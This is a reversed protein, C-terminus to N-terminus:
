EKPEAPEAEDEPLKAALPPLRRKNRNVGPLASRRTLSPSDSDPVSPAAPKKEERRRALTSSASLLFEQKKARPPETDVLPRAPGSGHVPVDDTPDAPDERSPRRPQQEVLRDQRDEDRQAQPAKPGRSPPPVALMQEVHARFDNMQRLMKEHRGETSARIEDLEKAQELVFSLARDAQARATALSRHSLELQGKLASIEVELREIREDVLDQRASEHELEEHDPSGHGSTDGSGFDGLSTPFPSGAAEDTSAFSSMARQAAPSPSANALDMVNRVEEAGVNQLAAQVDEAQDAYPDPMQPEHRTTQKHSKSPRPRGSASSM